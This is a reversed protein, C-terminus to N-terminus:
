AVIRLNLVLKVRETASLFYFKGLFFIKRSLDDRSVICSTLDTDIVECRRGLMETGQCRFTTFLTFYRQRRHVFKETCPPGFFYAVSLNYFHTL